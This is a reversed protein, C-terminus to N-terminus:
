VRTRRLIGGVRTALAAEVSSVLIDVEEGLLTRDPSSFEMSFGVSKKGSPLSGGQFSDFVVIAKLLPGANEAIIAQLRGATMDNDVLVAIDRRVSPFKSFEKFAIAPISKLLADVSFEAYYTERDLGLLAGINHRLIGLTGLETSDSSVLASAGTELLTTDLSAVTCPVHLELLISEI